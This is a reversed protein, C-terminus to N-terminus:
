IQKKVITYEDGFRYYPCTKKSFSAREFDDEDFCMVCEYMDDEEDYYYNMCTECDYKM